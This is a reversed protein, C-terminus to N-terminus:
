FRDSQIKRENKIAEYEDNSILVKKGEYNDYMISFGLKELLAKTIYSVEIYEPSGTYTHSSLYLYDTYQEIHSANLLRDCTRELNNLNENQTKYFFYLFIWIILTSSLFSLGVFFGILNM